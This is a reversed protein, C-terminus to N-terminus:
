TMRLRRRDLDGADALRLRRLQRSRVTPWRSRPRQYLPLTSGIVWLVTDIQNAIAARETEDITNSLQEVL